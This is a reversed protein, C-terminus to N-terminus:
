SMWHVGPELMVNNSTTTVFTVQFFFQGTGEDGDCQHANEWTWNERWKVLKDRLANGACESYRQM